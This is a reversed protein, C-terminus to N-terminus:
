KKGKDLYCGHMFAALLAARDVLSSRVVYENSSNNGGGIPGLGDLMAKGEPVFCIDSSSWRHEQQLSIELQGAAKKALNWLKEIEQSYVMPPRRVGGTVQLRVCSKAEKEAIRKIEMDVESGQHREKFRVSLSATANDPVKGFLANGEISTVCLIVGKEENSLRQWAIVKRCLDTIVKSEVDEQYQKPLMFEVQYYSAGARSTVVSGEPGGQKLGLIYNSHEAFTEVLGRSFRGQLWDDTTLLVGCRINKLVRAFRLSQLAALMIALGGKNEAIGSGYLRNGSERYPSHDKYRYPTDLHGLLLIDNEWHTHNAFFLINGVEVQPYVQRHFGLQALKEAMWNGCANVGEINRVYSNLEVLDKVKDEIDKTHSRLYGRVRAHFPVTRRAKPSFIDNNNAAEQGFYRVAAVDLMRNVLHDFDYGAAKAATVYSGRPGLSAMSNVELIYANGGTDVRFDIRAFDNLGLARFAGKSLKVLCDHVSPSIVAPCVKDLPKNLKHEATQIGFPDGSFDIEVIPLAELDSNGLLGVAFERGQIFEEVLAQQQFEKIVYDIAERLEGENHVVQIGYSVAENKPKIILPYRLEGFHEDPSSFVWYRPTPLNHRQFIVKAIVKDLALAHGTPGSGVYPVGLMELMAPVHTYRSEGQIGYAMNFVMGPREGSMVRPMFDRLSDIVHMNGDIVRVNHGGKELAAAVAEVTKPNYNERNQIGLVNIVGTHDKNYIVAVKM